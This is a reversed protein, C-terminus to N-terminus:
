DLKKILYEQFNLMNELDLDNNHEWGLLHLFGHSALWLMEKYISHKYEYSQELASELSIFIDGLEIHDLNDLSEDSIIPFSLVDTAGNKQMWKKNLSAIEQNSIIQLGLSFSKKEFIFNPLKFDDKKLIIKIWSLFVKEWFNSEFILKNKSVKLKNSFQSFENCKFVLDLNIESIIKETM